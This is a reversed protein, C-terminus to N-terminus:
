PLRVPLIVEASMGPVITRDTNPIAVRFAVARVDRKTASVDHQTAFEASVSKSTVRGRVSLGSPFRVTLSDGIAVAGAESEPAAVRVWLRDPDILVAVPSGPGVLEGRRAVLLAVVGAAPARLEAYGLRTRAAASDAQASRLQAATATIAKQAVSAGLSSADARRVDAEAARLTEHAAEVLQEQVRVATSDRELEAPSLAGSRALASARGVQNRLRALESEHRTADARAGALRARAGAQTSAVEGASQEASVTVQDLRARVDAASAGASAAQAALENRDLVALLEGAVVIAGEEVALSDLRGQVPPTVVIEDANVIGALALTDPRQHTAIYVLIITAVVGLIAALRQRPNM